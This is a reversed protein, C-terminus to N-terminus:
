FLTTVPTNKNIYPLYLISAYPLCNFEHFSQLIIEKIAQIQCLPSTEKKKRHNLEVRNPRFVKYSRHKPQIRISQKAQM